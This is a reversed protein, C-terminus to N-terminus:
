EAGGLAPRSRSPAMDLYKQVYEPKIAIYYFKGEYLQRGATAEADPGTGMYLDARGSARIAGGTDQDMLWSKYSTEGGTATPVTTMVFSPMARPYVSKDTAVTGWPTVPTNLSGFPGGPRETFFVFRRNIHLYQDMMAPNTDFYNKIGKLSLQEKTIKGEALLRKGPSDYPFGNNGAYGVEYIRGDRLRLKASGQISIVYADWRSKLYVLEQGNLLGGKEIEERTYYLVYQGDPTKRSASIGEPDTMLDAPRKYLPYRFEASPTLSAEYIPTFYGTFLVTRSFDNAEPDWGGISRYCEFEERLKANLAATGMPSQSQQDLLAKFAVCSALARDHPIDLYPYYTASSRKQLYEVSYGAAKSMQAAQTQDFTFEPWEALPIKELAMRGRELEHNFDKPKKDKCGGAFVALSAMSIFGVKLLAKV